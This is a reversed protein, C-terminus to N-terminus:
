IYQKLEIAMDLSSDSNCDVIVEISTLSSRTYKLLPRQLYYLQKPFSIEIVYYIYIIRM